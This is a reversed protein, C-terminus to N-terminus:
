TGFRHNQPRESTNRLAQFFAIMVINLLNEEPSSIKMTKVSASEMGALVMM